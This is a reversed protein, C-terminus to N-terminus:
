FSFVEQIRSEGGSDWLEGPDKGGWFKVKRCIVGARTLQEVADNAGDIGTEDDDYVIFVQGTCFRKLFNLQPRTIRARLTSFMALSDAGRAWSLAFMDYPGETLVVDDGRIVRQVSGPSSVWVPHWRSTPQIRYDTVWKRTTRRGEFGLVQGRLSFYPLILCGSIKFGREGYREEFEPPLDQAYEPNWTVAYLPAVWEERCGRSYLYHICSDDLDM